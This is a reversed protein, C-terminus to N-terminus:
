KKTSKPLSQEKKGNIDAEVKDLLKAVQRADKGQITIVNLAQLIISLEAITYETEM